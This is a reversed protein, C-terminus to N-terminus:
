FFIGLTTCQKFNWRSLYIMKKLNSSQDYFISSGVANSMNMKGHPAFPKVNARLFSINVDYVGLGECKAAVDDM